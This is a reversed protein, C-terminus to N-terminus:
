RALPDPRLQFRVVKPRNETGGEVHFVTRNASTAWLSRGKWGGDPDDIRGEAWKAFFGMPYPVRLTVFKGGVLAFYSDSLNGTAIPVNSGLGSTNFWDVWTFYSAEASGDDPVDRFQPGPLRHLTWGEPCHAGTATPGNLVQCRRRDFSALHGSSLSAWFVGNRDLDGGRPSYGPFPPEYIEALATHTPDSGPAVRVVYGPIGLSTGWVSGDIPSVAVSYFGVAVRKDKTPDVPQNPEVWADRKGNGNTDLIFPSWGQSKVEDGTEEYRKRNLWGFAGPGTVGSSVWLTQNADEAFVVHHTSFCTSILRFTGSAPDYLSLHRNAQQLPFLKASPHDSGATCFDPNAPPRVRAAMWVRGKEDMMQNHISAQSDWIPEPGWYPSPAMPAERSSPTKPDRVPHRVQTATHTNPDLVPFFDTSEEPAGYLKGNANITPNRRDTSILDHMYGTPTSWDWLTLVVNREIGQPRSPKDFPLEGAAVRDTWDGWLRLARQMDLRGLVNMMQTQAQGVTLRRMWAEASDKFEGLAKPITRTGLTGLAHCSLCGHTKINALWETQSKVPGAPFESKPPIKLMSYWYIAPYYQAAAAENPAKVATLNLIKGREGDVKPSDVLGYGRVWVKYRAKPLDPILYRGRDDTVVIKTFKTPLDTTEAIAWVGAEPGDPGTVVGGLDNGAVSVQLATSPQASPRVPSTALAVAIAAAGLSLATGTRM